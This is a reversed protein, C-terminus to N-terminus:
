GYTCSASLTPPEIRRWLWWAILTHGAFVPLMWWKFYQAIYESSEAPNSEFMIFLVSQSFEQGYICFYGLSILSTIWLVVGILGAILKTRHPWLMVPVLWLLSMYVAQRFGIFITSDTIQLLFHTIGSFYFFFLYLKSLKGWCVRLWLNQIM